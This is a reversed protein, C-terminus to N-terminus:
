RRKATVVRGIGALDQHVKIDHYAGSQEIIHKVLMSQDYGVELALLGAPKLRKAANKIIVPYFILGDDGGDLARYPEYTKVETQLTQITQTPIYPPNSVVIDVHNPLMKNMDMQLIDQQVLKIKDQVNHKHANKQAIKLAGASIDMSWLTINKLYYALSVAICGSGTGIDIATLSHEDAVKKYTDIVYEVLIETDARPILVDKTVYFPLSMFEQKRIIYQVPVGMIRRSIMENYKLVVKTDIKKDAHTVLYVRDCNLLHCLMWQADIVSNQIDKNKLETIAQKLLAGVSIDMGVM